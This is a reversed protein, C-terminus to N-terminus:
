LSSRLYVDIVVGARVSGREDVWRFEARERECNGRADCRPAVGYDLSIGVLGEDAAARLEGAESLGNGDRDRWVLLKGWACDSRDIMGDRNSDLEALAEFGNRETCGFLEGGDDIRGNGDRDMALWPTRATPWEFPTSGDSLRFKHSAAELRVPQGADFSLVLPTTCTWTTGNGDTCLFAAYSGEYNDVLNVTGDCKSDVWNSLYNDWINPYDNNRRNCWAWFREATCGNTNDSDACHDGYGMDNNCDDGETAECGITCGDDVKGNCDDDKGNGCSESSACCVHNNCSSGGGCSGCDLVEGCGDSMQGCQAGAAACTTPNCVCVNSSCTQGPECTGCKLVKGCGDSLDGCTAGQAECSTPICECQNNPNCAHGPECSGCNLVKGCGDSIDGCTAGAQVCTLPQCPGPGCANFGAGGCTQGDPCTECFLVGGCGDPVQGCPLGATECTKRVCPAAGIVGGDVMAPPPGNTPMPGSRGTTTPSAAASSAAAARTAIEDPSGICASAALGLVVAAITTVVLRTRM